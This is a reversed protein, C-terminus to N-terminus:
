MDCRRIVPVALILMAALMTLVGAILFWLQAGWIESLIGSLILAMPGCFYRLSGTLSMVRGLYEEQFHSQLIPTFMGWYLPGSVGMLWSCVVFIWYGDASLNGSILLSVSMLIYSLVMTYVRNRTGGWVGLILSGMMFGVSFVIEVISAQMSTGGFYSMSMLPFLASIPMLGITYLCSIMVLGYIGRNQKLVRFGEMAEQLVRIKEYTRKTKNKPIVSIMLTVAAFCAGFIDLMVINGLSWYQYLVAAAAPSFIDSVSTLAQSYGACRTLEKEPVIQPTVAQMCPAHFATGVSRLFLVGLIFGTSLHGTWGAVVLGFSVVAILIDSLIMIMKRNFRDIMVGAFPGLVAQPFFGMFMALTLVGASGTQDTLYWVVAFQLVSSTFNSVGQGAWITFFNRKWLSSERIGEQAANKTEMNMM